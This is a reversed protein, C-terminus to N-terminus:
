CRPLRDAGGPTALTQLATIADTLTAVKVLTMTTHLGALDGCDPAPVLFVEAGADEAGAIKEQIGGIPGVVGDPDISGTGAVHRGGLLAGDTIKDYIALAFVLGASPGGIEQGLDFSIQPDYRYGTGITIGVVPVGDATASEAARVTV